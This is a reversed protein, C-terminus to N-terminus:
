QGNWIGSGDVGNYIWVDMLIMVVAAQRSRNGGDRVKKGEEEEVDTM